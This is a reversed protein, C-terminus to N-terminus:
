LAKSISHKVYQVRRYKLKVSFVLIQNKLFIYIKVISFANELFNKNYFINLKEFFNGM